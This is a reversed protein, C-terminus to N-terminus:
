EEKLEVGLLEALFSVFFDDWPNDTAKAKLYLDQIGKALVERIHPSVDRLIAGLVKIALSVWFGYTVNVAM